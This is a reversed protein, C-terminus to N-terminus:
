NTLLLEASTMKKSDDAIFNSIRDFLIVKAGGETKVSFVETNSSAIDILTDDFTKAFDAQNQQNFLQGILHATKLRAVGQPLDLLLGGYQEETMEYLPEEWNPNNAM